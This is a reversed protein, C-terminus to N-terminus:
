ILNLIHFNNEYYHFPNQPTSYLLLCYFWNEYSLYSLLKYNSYKFCYLFLLFLVSAFLYISYLYTWSSYALM